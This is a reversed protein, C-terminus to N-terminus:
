IRGKEGRKQKGVLLQFNQLFFGATCLFYIRTPSGIKCSWTNSTRANILCKPYRKPIVKLVRLRYLHPYVQVLIRDWGNYILNRKNSTVVKLEMTGVAVNIEQSDLAHEHVQRTGFLTRELFDM